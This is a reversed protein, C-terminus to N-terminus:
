IFISQVMTPPNSAAPGEESIVKHLKALSTFRMNDSGYHQPFSLSDLDRSKLSTFRTNHLGCWQPPSPYALVWQM